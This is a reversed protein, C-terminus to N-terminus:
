LLKMGLLQKLPKFFPYVALNTVIDGEITKLIAGINKLQQDINGGKKLHLYAYDIEGKIEYKLSEDISTDKELEYKLFTFFQKIVFTEQPSYGVSTKSKKSERNMISRIDEFGKRNDFDTYIKELSDNLKKYKKIQNEFKNM